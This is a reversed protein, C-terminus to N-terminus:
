VTYHILLHVHITSCSYKRYSVFIPRAAAVPDEDTDFDVDKIIVDHSDIGYKMSSDTVIKRLDKVIQNYLALYTYSHILM